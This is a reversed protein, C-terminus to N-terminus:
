ISYIKGHNFSEKFADNHSNSGSSEEVIRVVENVLIDVVNAVSEELTNEESKTPSPIKSLSTVVTDKLLKRAKERLKNFKESDEDDNSKFVSKYSSHHSAKMKSFSNNTPITKRHFSPQVSTIKLCSEKSLSHIDNVEFKSGEKSSPNSQADGNISDQSRSEEHNTRSVNRRIKWNHSKLRQLSFGMPEDDEGDDNNPESKTIDTKTTPSVDKREISGRNIV